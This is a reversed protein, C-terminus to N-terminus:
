KIFEKDLVELVHQYFQYKPYRYTDEEDPIEFWVEDHEEDAGHSIMSDWQMKDVLYERFDKYNQLEHYKKEIENLKEDIKSM